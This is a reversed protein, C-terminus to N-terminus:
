LKLIIKKKVNKRDKCVQKVEGIWIIKYTGQEMFMAKHPM